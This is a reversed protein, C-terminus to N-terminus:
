CKAHKIASIDRTVFLRLLGVLIAALIIATRGCRWRSCEGHAAPGRSGDTMRRLPSYCVREGGMRM